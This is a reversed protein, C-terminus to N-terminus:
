EGNLLKLCNHLTLMDNLSIFPNTKERISRVFDQLEFQEVDGVEPLGALGKILNGTIAKAPKLSHWERKRLDLYALSKEAVIRLDHREFFGLPISTINASAGTKFELNIIQMETRRSILPLRSQHARIIEDKVLKISSLIEAIVETEQKHQHYQYERSFFINRIRPYEEILEEIGWFYMKPFSVQAIIEAEAALRSMAKVDANLMSGYEDVFIHKCAKIIDAVYKRKMKDGFLLVADCNALMEELSKFETEQYNEPKDAPFWAGAFAFDEDLRSIARRYGDFNVSNGVFATRILANM